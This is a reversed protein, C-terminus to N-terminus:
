EVEYTQEYNNNHGGIMQTLRASLNPGLIVFFSYLLSPVAYIM